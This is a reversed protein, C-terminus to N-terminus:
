NDMGGDGGLMSSLLWTFDLALVVWGLTAVVMRSSFRCTMNSQCKAILFVLGLPGSWGVAEIPELVLQFTSRGGSEWLGLGGLLIM